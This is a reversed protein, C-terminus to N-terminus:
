GDRSNFRSFMFRKVFRNATLYATLATLFQLLFCYRVAKKEYLLM